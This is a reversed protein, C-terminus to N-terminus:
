SAGDRLMERVAGAAEVTREFDDAVAILNFSRCGAAVYPRLAAAIDAPGGYPCYREFKAFPLHYLATMQAALREAAADRNQDIGCWVNLTHQWSVEARGLLQAEAAIERAAQQFREPSVWVALWGDGLRAARRLAAGSRGGVVMPVGPQAAPLIQVETLDFFEGRHTVPRGTLLERIVVLCEDTRRGRTAPDVGCARVEAPDEGGVGVGFSFRGPALAALTAVQRAVVVPHRLPLLYVATQIGIASTLAAASTANQLGDFGQGGRFTVHDGVCLRDLGAQEALGTFVRLRPADHQLEHPLRVGVSVEHDVSM